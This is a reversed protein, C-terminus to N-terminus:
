RNWRRKCSNVKIGKKRILFSNGSPGPVQEERLYIYRQDFTMKDSIGEWVVRDGREENEAENKNIARVVVQCINKTQREFVCGPFCSVSLLSKMELKCFLAQCM